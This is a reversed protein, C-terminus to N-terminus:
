PGIDKGTAHPTFEDFTLIDNELLAQEIQRRPLRYFYFNRVHYPVKLHVLHITEQDWKEWLEIGKERDNNPFVDLLRDDREIRRFGTSILRKILDLYEM